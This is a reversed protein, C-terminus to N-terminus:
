IQPPSRRFNVFFVAAEPQVEYLCQILPALEYSPFTFVQQVIALYPQRVDVEAQLQQWAHDVVVPSSRPDVIQRILSEVRDYMLKRQQDLDPRQDLQLVTITYMGRQERDDDSPLAFIKGSAPDIYLYHLPEDERPNLMQRGQRNVPSHFGKNSQCVDCSLIYNDWDWIKDAYLSQPWFHDITRAEIRECYGCKGHFAERLVANIEADAQVRQPNRSAWRVCRRKRQRLLRAADPSLDPCDIKIM